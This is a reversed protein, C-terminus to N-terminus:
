KTNGGNINKIPIRIVVDTGTGETSKIDLGCSEGYYLQLRKHVNVLGIHGKMDYTTSSDLLMNIRQLTESSMGNGTDCVSIVLLEDCRQVSIMVTCGSKGLAHVVCNEVLPLLTFTPILMQKCDTDIAITYILKDGFRQKQIRLYEEALEAELEVSNTESQWEISARILKSYSVVMESTEFDGHKLACTNVAQLCNFLSHPNIQSRLALIQANKLEIEKQYMDSRLRNICNLMENVDRSVDRIEDAGDLEEITDREGHAVARVSESLHIIRKSFKRASFMIICLQITFLCIWLIINRRFSDLISESTTRIRTCQIFYCDKLGFSDGVKSIYYLFGDEETNRPYLESAHAYHTDTVQKSLLSNDNSALIVGDYNAIIYSSASDTKILKNINNTLIEVRFLNVYRGNPTLNAILTIADLGQKSTPGSFTFDHDNSLGNAYWDSTKDTASIRKVVTAPLLMSDNSTLIDVSNGSLKEYILRTRYTHEIEVSDFHKKEVLTGDPYTKNLFGTLYTDVKLSNFLQIYHDLYSDISLLSQEFTSKVRTIEENRMSGAIDMCLVVTLLCLPLVIGTFYSLLLKTKFSHVKNKM